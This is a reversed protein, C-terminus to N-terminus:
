VFILSEEKAPLTKLPEPLGLSLPGLMRASSKRSMWPWGMLGQDRIYGSSIIWVPMDAISVIFLIARPWFIGIKEAAPSGWLSTYVYRCKENNNYHGREGCIAAIIHLCPPRTLCSWDLPTNSSWSSLKAMTNEAIPTLVLECMIGSDHCVETPLLTKSNCESPKCTLMSVARNKLCSKSSFPEISFTHRKRLKALSGVYTVM